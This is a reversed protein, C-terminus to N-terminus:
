ELFYKLSHHYTKIQFHHGLVHPRWTHVAHLIAMMEKEYTSRDLNHGSLAQRNFALSWGDQSLVAGIGTGFAKSEVVFTKSFYPAALVPTTCM